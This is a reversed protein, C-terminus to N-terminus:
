YCWQTLHHDGEVMQSIRDNLGGVHIDSDVGNEKVEVAVLM